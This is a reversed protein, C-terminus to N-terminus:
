PATSGDESSTGETKEESDEKPKSSGESAAGSSKIDDQGNSPLPKADATPPEGSGNPAVTDKSSDATSKASKVSKAKESERGERDDEKKVPSRVAKPPKHSLPGLGQAYKSLPIYTDEENVQYHPALLFIDGQENIIVDVNKLEQSRASSIDVGNLFVSKVGGPGALSSTAYLAILFLYRRM